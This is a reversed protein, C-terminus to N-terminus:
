GAKFPLLAAVAISTGRDVFTESLTSRGLRERIRRDM